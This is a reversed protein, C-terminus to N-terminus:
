CSKICLQPVLVYWVEVLVWTYVLLCKLFTHLHFNYIVILQYQLILLFANWNEFSLKDKYLTFIFLNWNNPIIIANIKDWSAFFQINQKVGHFVHWIWEWFKFIRKINSRLHALVIYLAWLKMKFNHVINVTLHHYHICSASCPKDTKFTSLFWTLNFSQIFIIIFVFTTYCVSTNRKTYSANILNTYSVNLWLMGFLQIHGTSLCM